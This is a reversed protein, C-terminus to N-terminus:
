ALVFLPYKEGDPEPQFVFCKRQQRKTRFTQTKFVALGFFIDFTPKETESECLKKFIERWLITTHIEGYLSIGSTTQVRKACLLIFAPLFLCIQRVLFGSNHVCFVLIILQTFTIRDM